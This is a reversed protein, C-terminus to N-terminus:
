KRKTKPGLARSSVARQWLQKAEDSAQFVHDAASIVARACVCVRVCMKNLNMWIFHSSM